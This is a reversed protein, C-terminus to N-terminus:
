LREDGHLKVLDLPHGLNYYGVFAPWCECSLLSGGDTPVATECSEYLEDLHCSLLVDRHGVRRRAASARDLPRRYVYANLSFSRIDRFPTQEWQGLTKTPSQGSCRRQSETCRRRANSV